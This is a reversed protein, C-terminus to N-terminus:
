FVFEDSSVFSSIFSACRQGDLASWIVGTFRVFQTILKLWVRHMEGPVQTRTVRSQRMTDLATEGMGLEYIKHRLSVEFAPAFIVEWNQFFCLDIFKKDQQQTKNAAVWFYIRQGMLVAKEGM